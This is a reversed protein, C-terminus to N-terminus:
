KRVTTFVVAGGPGITAIFPSDNAIRGGLITYIFAVDTSDPLKFDTRIVQVSQTQRLIAESGKVLARYEPLRLEKWGAIVRRPTSVLVFMLFVALATTAAAKQPIARLAAGLTLAAPASLVLFWYSELPRTWGSFGAVMLVIPAVTVALLAADRRYMTVVIAGAVLFVAGFWPAPGPWFLNIGCLSMLNAFSRTVSMTSPDSAASAVSNIVIAPGLPGAPSRLAHILFPIQLLVIVEVVVRASQLAGRWQANFLPRLVLAALIPAAVFLASSHAQVALWAVATILAVRWMSVPEAGISLSLTLAMAMKTLAVALPPNWITASLALDFGQLGFLVVVGAALLFSSM